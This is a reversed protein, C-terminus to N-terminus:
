GHKKKLLIIIKQVLGQYFPPDIFIIDYSNKNKKLWHLANTKIIHMNSINLKKINEKISYILKGHIELSTVSEALRSISEIGLIGSGAFCDLCRANKIHKELWNFLTERIRNTTPRLYPMNIFSVKRGKFQGNIVYLKNKLKFLKIKM